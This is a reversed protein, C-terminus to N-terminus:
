KQQGCPALTLRAQSVTLGRDLHQQILHQTESAADLIDLGSRRRRRRAQRHDIRLVRDAGFLVYRNRELHRRACSMSTTARRVPPSLPMSM